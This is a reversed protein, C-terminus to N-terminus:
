QMASRSTQQYVVYLYALFLGLLAVVQSLKIAGKELFSYYMFLAVAMFGMDRAFLSFFRKNSAQREPTAAPRPNRVGFNVLYGFAPVITVCFAIGGFVTALGFETMKIGHRQFSLLTVALEPVAIGFAILVGALGKSLGYRKSINQLSPMLYKDAMVGQSILLYMTAFCEFVFIKNDGQLQIFEEELM